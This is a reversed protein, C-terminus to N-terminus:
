GDDVCVTSARRVADRDRVAASKEGEGRAKMAPAGKPVVGSQVKPVVLDAGRARCVLSRGSVM